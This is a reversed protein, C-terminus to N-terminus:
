EVRGSDTFSPLLGSAFILWGVFVGYLYVAVLLLELM